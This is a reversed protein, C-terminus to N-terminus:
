WRHRVDREPLQSVWGDPMCDRPPLDPVEDGSKDLGRLRLALLAVAVAVVVALAVLIETM